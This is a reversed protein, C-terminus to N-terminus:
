TPQGALRVPLGRCRRGSRFLRADRLPHWHCGRRTHSRRHFHHPHVALAEQPCPWCPHGLPRPCCSTDLLPLPSLRSPWRNRQGQHLPLLQLDPRGPHRLHDRQHHPCHILFTSQLVDLLVPIGHG